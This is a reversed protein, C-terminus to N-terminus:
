DNTRCLTNEPKAETEIDNLRNFCYNHYTTREDEHGVQGRIMNINLGFDILNSIYTITFSIFNLLDDKNTNM